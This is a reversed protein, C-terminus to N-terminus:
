NLSIKSLFENINILNPLQLIKNKLFLAMMFCSKKFLFSELIIKIKGSEM